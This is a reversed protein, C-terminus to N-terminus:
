NPARIHALSAFPFWTTSLAFHVLWFSGEIVFKCYALTTNQNSLVNYEGPALTATTLAQLMGDDYHAEITVTVTSTGVNTVNCFLHENALLLDLAPATYLVKTAHAPAALALTILGMAIGFRRIKM